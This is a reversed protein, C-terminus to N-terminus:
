NKFSLKKYPDLRKYSCYAKRLADEGLIYRISLLLCAFGQRSSKKPDLKEIKNLIRLM